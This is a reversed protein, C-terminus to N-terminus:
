NAAAPVLNAGVDTAGVVTGNADAAIYSRATVNQNGTINGTVNANGTVDLRGGVTVNQNATVNGTVTGGTLPLYFSSLWAVDAQIMDYAPGTYPNAAALGVIALLGLLVAAIRKHASM